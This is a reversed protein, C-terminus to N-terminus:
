PKLATLQTFVCRWRGDRRVFVDSSREHTAFRQGKWTGGSRAIGSVIATEGYIRVMDPALSMQDHVLDGSAVARLFAAKSTQAGEAAIIVWEDATYADIGDVDNAALARSWAAEAQLVQQEMTSRAQAPAMATAVLFLIAAAARV